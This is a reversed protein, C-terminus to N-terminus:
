HVRDLTDPMGQKVRNDTPDGKDCRIDEPVDREKIFQRQIRGAPMLHFMEEKKSGPRKNQHCRTKGQGLREAHGRQAM